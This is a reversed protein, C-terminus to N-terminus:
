TQGNCSANKFTTYTTKGFSVSKSSLLIRFVEEVALDQMCRWHSCPKWAYCPSCDLRKQIITHGMGYPGTRVPNAPGFIAFVPINLAAALHMPGTDNTILCIAGKVVPILNKLSTKGAISVAKGKAHSVVTEAIHADSGGAIVVSPLSFKAALEGFREAPWQNAPKGASPSILIYQQPLDRCVNPVPDFPALPYVVRDRNCGLAGALKLYREVAHIGMDGKIRHTYFLPSGEDSDEFGLRIIAGSAFAILGSRLLGSLDLAVDYKESRLGKILERIESFTVKLRRLSKWADKKIVWLRHIMPHGELFTHLGHAVVWDIRAHPFRRHLSDLVPLTHIIDGFASPKIILIKQIRKPNVKGLQDLDICKLSPNM